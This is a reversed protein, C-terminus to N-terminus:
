KRGFRWGDPLDQSAPLRRATVGDTIWKEGRHQANRAAVTAKFEDTHKVRAGLVNGKMRAAVDPRIRGRNAAGIKAKTEESVPRGPRGRKRECAAAFAASSRLADSIKQRDQEPHPKGARYSNGVLAASTSQSIRRRVDENPDILGEGGATSNVLNNSALASIWHRERAAWTQKTVEELVVVGIDAGRAIIANIWHHRHCRRKKAEQKHESVRASPTKSTYGVYRVLKDDDDTAFLGYILRTM